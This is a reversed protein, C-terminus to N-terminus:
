IKPHLSFMIKLFRFEFTLIGWFVFKQFIQGVHGVERFGGDDVVQGFSIDSEQDVGIGTKETDSDVGVLPKWYIVIVNNTTVLALSFRFHRWM